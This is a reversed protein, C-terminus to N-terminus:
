SFSRSILSYWLSIIWFEAEINGVHAKFVVVPIHVFSYAVRISICDRVFWYYPMSLPSFAALLLDTHTNVNYLIYVIAPSITHYVSGYVGM